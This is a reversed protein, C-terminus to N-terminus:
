QMNKLDTLQDIKSLIINNSNLQGLVATVDESGRQLFSEVIWDSQLGKVKCIAGVQLACPINYINPIESKKKISINLNDVVSRFLVTRKRVELILYFRGFKDAFLDGKKM